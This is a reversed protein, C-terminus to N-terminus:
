RRQPVTSIKKYQQTCSILLAVRNRQSCVNKKNVYEDLLTCLQM